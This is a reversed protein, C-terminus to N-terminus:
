AEDTLGIESSSDDVIAAVPRNADLRRWPPAIDNPESQEGAVKIDADSADGTRSSIRAFRVDVPAVLWYGFFRASRAVAAIAYRTSREQFTADAIVSTGGGM